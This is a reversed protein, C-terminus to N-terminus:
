HPTRRRLPELARAAAAADVEASQLRAPRFAAQVGPAAIRPAVAALADLLGDNVADIRPRIEARLDLTDAFPAAAAATWRDILSRQVHKGAEIQARFFTEVWDPSLGRNGARERLAALLSAERAADEVPLRANWKARAVLPMLALRERMLDVLREAAADLQPAARVVPAPPPSAAPTAGCGLAFAVAFVLRRSVAFRVCRAKAM